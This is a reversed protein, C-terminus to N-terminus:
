QKKLTDYFDTEALPKYYYYGQIEDCGLKNLIERQDRTEVGEAITRIHMQKCMTIMVNLIATIKFNNSSRLLDILKKDFKLETVPLDALAWINAHAVGFDDISICFGNASLTKTTDVLEKHYITNSRESVELPVMNHQIRYKSLIEEIKPLFDQRVITHRSFNCSVPVVEEHNDLKQRMTRCIHELVFLDILYTNHTAELTPIFDNPPIITDGIKLRILAEAGAIKESKVSVKPQYVVMFSNEKILEKVRSPSIVDLVSEKEDIFYRHVLGNNNRYFDRKSIFMNNEATRMANLLESGKAIWCTGVAASFGKENSMFLRLTETLMKFNYEGISPYICFFEDGSVRYLYESKLFVKHLLNITRLIANDGEKEGYIQNILKLGNINIFAVGLRKHQSLRKIDEALATRNKIGTLSDRNKLNYFEIYQNRQSTANALAVDFLYFADAYDETAKKDPNLVFAYGLIKEKFQFPMVFLSTIESNKLNEPLASNIASIREDDTKIYGYTMRTFVAEVLVEPITASQFDTIDKSDLSWLNTRNYRSNQSYGFSRNEYISVSSANLLKGLLKIEEYIAINPDSLNKSIINFLSESIAPSSKKDPSEQKFRIPEQKEIKHAINVTYPIGNQVHKFAKVEYYQHIIELFNHSIFCGDGYSQNCRCNPCSSNRGRILSYCHTPHETSINLADKMSKNMFVISKDVTNTVFVLDNVSDALQESIETVSFQGGSDQKSDQLPDQNSLSTEPEETPMLLDSM